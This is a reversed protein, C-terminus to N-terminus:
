RNLKFGKKLGLLKEFEGLLGPDKEEVEEEDDLRNNSNGSHKKRVQVEQLFERQVYAVLEEVLTAVSESCVDFQLGCRSEGKKCGDKVTTHGHNRVFAGIQIRELGKGQITLKVPAGVPLNEVPLPNCFSLGGVSIDIITTQLKGAEEGVLEFTIETEKTVKARYHRRKRYIHLERPYSLQIAPEGRVTLTRVFEVEAEICKVGQFFRIMVEKSSRIHVNGIAPVLPAVILRDHDRLYSLPEYKPAEAAVNEDAQMGSAALSEQILGALGLDPLHDLFTSFFNRSRDNISIELDDSEEHSKLLHRYIRTPDKLVDFQQGHPGGNNKEDKNGM